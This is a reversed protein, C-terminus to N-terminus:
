IPFIPISNNPFNPDSIQFNPFEFITELEMGYKKPINPFRFSRFDSIDYRTEVESFIPDSKPFKPLESSKFVGLYEGSPSIKAGQRKEMVRSEQPESM